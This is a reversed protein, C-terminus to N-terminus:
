VHLCRGRGPQDSLWDWMGTLDLVRRVIGRAASIRLDTGLELADRHCAGLASLGAADLFTVDGLDILLRKARARRVVEAVLGELLPASIMDLEGVGVLRVVGDAAPTETLAFPTLM